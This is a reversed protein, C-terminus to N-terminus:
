SLGRPESSTGKKTKVRGHVYIDKGVTQWQPTDLSLADVINDVGAGILPAKAGDGGVLTPAVFVHVEDIARLDFLAGLLKPGGEVLLNTMRRRGLEDLLQLLRDNPSTGALALVECGAATLQDCKLNSAASSTAIIVPAERATRVLQSETGLSAQSDVVVRTAVRQGHPRATLLPDDARATGSGVVIADVRGRIEHV